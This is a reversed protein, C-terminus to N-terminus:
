SAWWGHFGTPPEFRQGTWRLRTPGPLARTRVSHAPDGPYCMFRNDQETLHEPQICPPLQVAAALTHHVDPYHALQVLTMLQPPMLGLAGNWHRQIADRPTLWLSEVAEHHDHVVTQDAPMSAVFFRTDFRATCLPSDRPTIWRSWPHLDSLDLRVGAEEALERLAAVYLAIGTLTDLQPENLRPWGATGRGAQMAGHAAVMDTADLKGGPFVYMGGLVRANHHRRQLLVQLGLSSDRLLVVSSADLPAPADTADFVGATDPHVASM